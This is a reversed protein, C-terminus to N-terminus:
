SNRGRSDTWGLTAISYTGANEDFRARVQAVNNTRIFNSAFFTGVTNLGFSFLPSATQSPAEDTAALDSYYSESGTGVVTARANFYAIVPVGTAVTLTVSAATVSKTAGNVDLVSVLWRFYDGDQVFATINKASNLLVSGIRRYYLYTAPLAPVTSVSMLFDPSLASNAIVFTNYWTSAASAGTDLMGNGSGAVFSATNKIFVSTVTMTATNTSDIATGVSFTVQSTGSVTSMQLGALYSRPINVVAPITGSGLITIIATTNSALSSTTFKALKTPDVPDQIVPMTGLYPPMSPHTANLIAYNVASLGTDLVGSDNVVTVTTIGAGFSSATVSSYITGGTNTSQLRRNVQFISTQNGAVSFQTASIYTPTGGAAWETSGSISVDNIGILNDYTAIINSLSDTLVFNYTLGATLWIESPPRGDANLM